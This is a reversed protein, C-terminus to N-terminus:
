SSFRNGEKAFVNSRIQSMISDKIFILNEVIPNLRFFSFKHVFPVWRNKRQQIHFSLSFSFSASSSTHQSPLHHIKSPFLGGLPFILEKQTSPM